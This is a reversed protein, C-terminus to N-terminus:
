HAHDAEGKELESKLVFSGQSVYRQGATLGSIVEVWQADNSAQGLQIPQAKLHVQGKQEADVVFVSTQGEINQIASKHVRLATKSSTNDLFINVLVNPRLEAAQSKLKARVVLRGTQADAQSTLSQIVAEYKQESANPKFTLSQNAQLQGSYQAPLNFELWLEKFQEIVFLQDALQVNEGVVIDKQSIVGAIPAKIAFRGNVGGTAGLANLRSQVSQVTIQAQRYANEARQYDQKASIGQSWLQQERQYDQRALDLSAQAM